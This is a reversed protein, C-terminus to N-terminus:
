MKNFGQLQCIRSVKKVLFDLSKKAKFIVLVLNKRIHM